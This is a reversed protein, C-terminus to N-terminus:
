VPWVSLNALHVLTPELKGDAEGATIHNTIESCFLQSSEVSQSVSLGKKLSEVVATISAKMTGDGAFYPVMKEFAAVAPLGALFYIGMALILFACEEDIEADTLQEVQERVGEIVEPLRAAMQLAVDVDGCDEGISILHIRRDSWSFALQRGCRISGLTGSITGGQRLGDHLQKLLYVTGPCGAVSDAATRISELVPTYVAMLKGLAAFAQNPRSNAPPWNASVADESLRHGAFEIM